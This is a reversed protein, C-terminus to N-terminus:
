MAWPDTTAATPRVETPDDFPSASKGSSGAGPWQAKISSETGGFTAFGGGSSSSFTDATLVFSDNVPQSANELNSSNSLQALASSFLHLADRPNKTFADVTATSSRVEFVGSWTAAGNNSIQGLASLVISVAISEDWRTKAM